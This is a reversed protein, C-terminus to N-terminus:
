DSCSTTTTPTRTKSWVAGAKPANHTPPNHVVSTWSPRVPPKGSHYRIFRCLWNAPLMNSVPLEAVGDTSSGGYYYEEAFVTRMRLLVLCRLMMQGRLILGDIRLFRQWM